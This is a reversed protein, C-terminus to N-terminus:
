KNKTKEFKVPLVYYCRVAITKNKAADWKPMKNILNLVAKNCDADLGKIIEPNSCSGDKEVVFRVYMLGEVNNEQSTKPYILERGIYKLMKEEGGKFQPPTSVEEYKFIEIPSKNISKTEKQLELPSIYKYCLQSKYGNIMSKSDLHLLGNKLIKGSYKVTGYENKTAFSLKGKKLKYKGKSLGEKELTFWKKVKYPTGISSVSIVAGNEYFKLYKYTNISNSSDKMTTYLGEFHLKQSFSNPSLFLGLLFILLLNKM